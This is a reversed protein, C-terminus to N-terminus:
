AAAEVRDTIWGYGEAEREDVLAPGGELRAVALKLSPHVHAVGLARRRIRITGESAGAQTSARLRDIRRGIEALREEIRTPTQMAGRRRM